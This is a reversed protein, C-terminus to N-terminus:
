GDADLVKGRKVVPTKSRITRWGVAPPPQGGQEISLLLSQRPVGADLAWGGGDGQGSVKKDSWESCWESGQGDKALM